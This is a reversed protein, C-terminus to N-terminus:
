PVAVLGVGAPVAHEALIHRHTHSAMSIVWYEYIYSDAASLGNEELSKEAMARSTPVNSVWSKLLLSLYDVNDLITNYARIIFAFETHAEFRMSKMIFSSHPCIPGEYYLNDLNLIAYQESDCREMKHTIVISYPRISKLDATEIIALDEKRFFPVFLSFKEALKRGIPFSNCEIIFTIGSLLSFLCHQFVCSSALKKILYKSKNYSEKETLIKRIFDNYTKFGGLELNSHSSYNAANMQAHISDTPLLFIYVTIDPILDILNTLNEIKRLDESIEEFSERTRPKYGEPPASPSLNLDLLLQNVIKIRSSLSEDSLEISKEMEFLEYAYISFDNKFISLAHEHMKMCYYPIKFNSVMTYDIVAESINGVMFCVIRSFSRANIDPISVYVVCLYYDNYKTKIVTPKSLPYDPLAPFSVCYWMLDVEYPIETAKLEWIKTPPGGQHFEFIMSISGQHM